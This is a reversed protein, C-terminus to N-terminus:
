YLHHIYDVADYKKVWRWFQPDEVIEQIERAKQQVDARPGACAILEESYKLWSAKMPVEVKLLRSLSLYHATWCMIVPLILTLIKHFTQLQERCFIGLACSHNNM